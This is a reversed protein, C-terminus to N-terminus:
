KVTPTQFWNNASGFQFISSGIDAVAGFGAAQEMASAGKLGAKMMWSEEARFENAMTTLYTQLSASEYEVGSSAGALKAQGLVRENHIRLRRVAEATERRKQAAADLGATFSMATKGLSLALVAMSIPEM